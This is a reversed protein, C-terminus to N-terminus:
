FGESIRIIGQLFPLLVKLLPFGVWFLFIDDFVSILVELFPLVMFLPHDIFLLPFEELIPIIGELFPSSRFTWWSSSLLM